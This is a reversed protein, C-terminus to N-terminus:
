GDIIYEYIIDSGHADGYITLSIIKAYVTTTPFKVMDEEIGTIVFYLDGYVARNVTGDSYKRTDLFREADKKNMPLGDIAWRNVFEIKFNQPFTVTNKESLNIYTNAQIPTFDFYQKTFDYVGFEYLSRIYFQKKPDVEEIHNRFKKEIGELYGRYEFEDQSKVIWNQYDFKYAYPITQKKFEYESDFSIAYSLMNRWNFEVYSEEHEQLLIENDTYDDSDAMLTQPMILFIAVLLFKM